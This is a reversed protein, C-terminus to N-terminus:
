DRKYFSFPLKFSVALLKKTYDYALSSLDNSPDAAPKKPFIFSVAVLITFVTLLDKLLKNPLFYFYIVRM